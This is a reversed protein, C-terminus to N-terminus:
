NDSSSRMVRWRLFVFVVIVSSIKRTMSLRKL